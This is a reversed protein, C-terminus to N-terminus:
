KHTKVHRKNFTSFSYFTKLFTETGRVERLVGKTTCNYITQLSLLYINKTYIIITLHYPHSFINCIKSNNANFLHTYLQPIM